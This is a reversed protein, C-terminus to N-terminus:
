LEKHLSRGINSYQELEYVAGNVPASSDSLWFVIHSAVEEPVLLRGTPAYYEPVNKEWGPPFGESQKLAIENPTTVWGVNLLNIRIRETALSNALNRTVAILGGKAASYASSHM